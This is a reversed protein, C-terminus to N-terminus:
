LPHTRLSLFDIEGKQNITKGGFAFLADRDVNGVSKERRFLAFEDDGVRRAMLLIGAVHDGAGRCGIEGDDQDIRALAHQGLGPAM